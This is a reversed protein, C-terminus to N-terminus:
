SVAEKKKVAIVRVRGMAALKSVNVKKVPSIGLLENFRVRKHFPDKVKGIEYEVHQGFLQVTEDLQYALWSNSIAL